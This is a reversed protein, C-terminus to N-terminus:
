EREVTAVAKNLPERAFAKDDAIRKAAAKAQKEAERKPEWYAQTVAVVDELIWRREEVGAAVAPTTGLATHKRVLNYLGIHLAVAAKHMEM